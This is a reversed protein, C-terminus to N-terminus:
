PFPFNEVRQIDMAKLQLVVGEVPMRLIEPETHEQFDREYVASSYLRYCHGPGTRGSTDMLNDISLM